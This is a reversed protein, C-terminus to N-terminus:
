DKVDPFARWFRFSDEDLDKLWPHSERVVAKVDRFRSRRPMVLQRPLRIQEEFIVLSILVSPLFPSRDLIGAPNKHIAYRRVEEGGYKSHLTKWIPETVFILDRDPVIDKKM